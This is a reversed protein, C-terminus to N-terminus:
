QRGEQLLKAAAAIADHPLGAAGTPLGRLVSHLAAKLAAVRARAALLDARLRIDEDDM